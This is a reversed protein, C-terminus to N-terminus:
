RIETHDGVISIYKTTANSDANNGPSAMDLDAAAAYPNRVVFRLTSWATVMKLDGANTGPIGRAWDRVQYIPTTGDAGFGIVEWTQMPRHAPWWLTEWAQQERALLMDGENAAYLQNWREYTIDIEQTSCENFDSQWPLGMYKTLDGPQLGRAFNNDQSLTVDVYADYDADSLRGKQANAQAATQRFAYFDPDAKIRFPEHYIAPNRMIWGVEGGPCFAGGLVNHLVGRDLDRGTQNVWGKYPEFPDPTAWGENQENWFRGEAWQRLLYYQTDTLRLFKSPLTNSIPNDGALLPMLPLNYTRQTPRGGLRFSNEEGPRRLLDFLYRRYRRFPDYTAAATCEGECTALLKGTRFQDLSRVTYAALRDFVMPNLCQDIVVQCLEALAQEFGPIARQTGGGGRVADKWATIAESRIQAVLAEAETELSQKKEAITERRIQAVLAEAETEPSQKKKADTPTPSAFARLWQESYQGFAEEVKKTNAANGNAQRAETNAAQLLPSQSVVAQAFSHAIHKIRNQFTDFLLDGFRQPFSQQLHELWQWYERDSAESHTVNGPLARISGDFKRIAQRLYDDADSHLMTLVPTLTECLLDGSQNKEM